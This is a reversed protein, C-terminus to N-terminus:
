NGSDRIGVRVPVAAVVTVLVAPDIEVLFGRRGGNIYVRDLALCEAAPATGGRDVYGYLHPMFAIGAARLARIAPTTPIDPKGM